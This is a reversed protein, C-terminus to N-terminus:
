VFDMAWKTKVFGTHQNGSKSRAIDDFGHKSFGTPGLSLGAAGHLRLFIM